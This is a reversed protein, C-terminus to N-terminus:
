VLKNTNNNNNNNNNHVSNLFEDVMRLLEPATIRAFDDVVFIRDFIQWIIDPLSKYKLRMGMTLDAFSSQGACLQHIFEHNEPLETFIFGGFLMAFLTVGLAWIDAAARNTPLGYRYVLTPIISPSRYPASGFVSNPNYPEDIASAYGLDCLSISKDRASYLFNEPKIDNHAVRKWHLKQVCSVKKRFMYMATMFGLRAKLLHSLVDFDCHKLILERTDECIAFLDVVASNGNLYEYCRVENVFEKDSNVKKIAVDIGESLWRYKVVAGNKGSGVEELYVFDNNRDFHSLRRIPKLHSPFSSSSSSSSSTTPLSQDLLSM